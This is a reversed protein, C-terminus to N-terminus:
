VPVEAWIGELGAGESVEVGALRLAEETAHLVLEVEEREIALGMHGVRFIVGALPGLGGSIHIDHTQVLYAALDAAPLREHARVSTTIPSAWEDDVFMDFGLQRLGKRVALAAEATRAIRSDLGEALIQQIGTDMAYLISTPVTTPYPHFAPWDQRYRRWVKLDLYWGRTSTNSDIARWASDSVSIASIGPPIALCKNAVSVCFDIGWADVPVEVGGVSAIADVISLAGHERAAAAIQEAPNLVGTSTEHHVWVVADYGPGESLRQVVADADIPQGDEFRLSDTDARHSQCMEVIRDGFFGNSLALVRAGDPIASTVAADLAATGPGVILYLDNDTQFIRKMGELCRNYVAVFDAGYHPSIPHGLAEMVEPSVSAPGPIFLHPTHREDSM